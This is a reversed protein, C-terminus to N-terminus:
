ENNKIDGLVQPTGSQVAPQETATPISEFEEDSLRLYKLVSKAMPELEAIKRKRFKTSAKAREVLRETTIIGLGIESLNSLFKRAETVPYRNRGPTGSPTTASCPPM